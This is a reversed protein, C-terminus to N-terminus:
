EVTSINNSAKELAEQYQGLTDRRDAEISTYSSGSFPHDTVEIETYDKEERLNYVVDKLDNRLQPTILSNRILTFTSYPLLATMADDVSTPPIDIDACTVGIECETTEFLAQAVLELARNRLKAKEGYQEIDYASESSIPFVIFRLNSDINTLIINIKDLEIEGNDNNATTARVQALDVEKSNADTTRKPTIYFRITSSNSALLKKSFNNSLTDLFATLKQSQMNSAQESKNRKLLYLLPTVSM